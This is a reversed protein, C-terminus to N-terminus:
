LVVTQEAPNQHDGFDNLNEFNTLSKVIHLDIFITIPSRRSPDGFRLRIVLITGVGFYHNVMVTIKQVMGTIKQVMETIIERFHHYDM